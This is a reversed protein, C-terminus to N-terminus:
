PIPDWILLHEEETSQRRGLAAPLLPRPRPMLLPDSGLPLARRPAPPLLLHPRPPLHRWRLWGQPRLPLGAHPGRGRPPAPRSLGPRLCPPGVAQLRAGPPPAERPRGAAPSRPDGRRHRRVAVAVGGHEKSPALSIPSPPSFHFAVTVPRPRIPDGKIGSTFQKAAM